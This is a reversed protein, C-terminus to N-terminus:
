KEEVIPKEVEGPNFLQYFMEIVEETGLQVVRIGSRTIGQSVVDIRQELQSRYEEFGSQNMKGKKKKGFGLKQLPSKSDNKLDLTPPTYPITIFFRKTMINAQETFTKIFEVYERTQVKMLDNTQEKKRQELLNVYPRIDLRRSQVFIQFDFNISNLFNQFQYIISKQEDESKLAFNTSSTMLIARMSGDKLIIIGDRVEKIPVFNQTTEQINAM